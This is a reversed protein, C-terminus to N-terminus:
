VAESAVPAAYPIDEASFQLVSERPVSARRRSRLQTWLGMFDTLVLLALYILAGAVVEAAMALPTVHHRVPYLAMGMIGTAVAVRACAGAPLPLAIYRRGVAITLAIAVLYASVSVAAAGNIGWRPIAVFNVAVNLIAAVLVIWVQSTTRHVFQFAADFHYAKMGALFTALAVLPMVDAAPGRFSPGVFCHTIGPALLIMGVVCPVGIGLLLSANIQMADGAERAGGTEWARVALPFMALHIATMLLTITQTTFDAAVSYLGAAGEGLFWAILYRDSTAIVVTLAVTLSLPLGYRALSLLLTRDVRLRADAWDRRWVFAVAAAMGLAAGAAPGWWSAGMAVLAFGLAVYAGARALQMRMFQWPRLMARAYECCLEFATQVALLLWCVLIFGRWGQTAPLACAALALVGSVAILTVAATMLTSKLRAVGGGAAAVYRVLSLRMWQFILAYVVNVTALVLAFRGYAAPDLVRSLLPIALFSVVGPLGRAALYAAAHSLVNTGTRQMGFGVAWGVTV